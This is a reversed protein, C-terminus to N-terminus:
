ARALLATRSGLVRRSVRLRFRAPCARLERSRAGVTPARARDHARARRRRVARRALSAHSSVAVRRDRRAGHRRRPRRRCRGARDGPDRRPEVADRSRGDECSCRRAAASSSSRCTPRSRSPDDMGLRAAVEVRLTVRERAIAALPPACEVATAFHRKAEERSKAAVIGRWADGYSERRRVDGAFVGRAEFASRAWAVDLERGLRRQLLAYSWRRLADRLPLESAPPDLAALADYTTQGAVWRFPEIPDVEAREEPEKALAARWRTWAVFARGRRSRAQRSRGGADGTLRSGSRSQRRRCVATVIDAECASLADLRASIRASDGHAAKTALDVFVRFHRAEAAFLEEYFAHLDPDRDVLAAALLKFRECSRAEILAGVLLRDVLAHVMGRAPLSSAARRLRAAYEDVPPSGLAISRRELVALVRQFHEIEEQAISTLARVLALDDPHRAALSLANSAAKMECHAHDRLLADVDGLAHSVWADDTAVRLSLM